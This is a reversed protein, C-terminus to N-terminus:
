HGHVQFVHCWAINGHSLPNLAGLLLYNQFNMCQHKHHGEPDCQSCWIDEYHERGKKIDKLQIRLNELKTQIQNMGVGTEGVTSAELNM